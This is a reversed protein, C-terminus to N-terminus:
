QIVVRYVRIDGESYLQVSQSNRRTYEASCFLVSSYNQRNNQIPTFRPRQYQPLFTPQPHKLTPHQPSYKPRSPVLYRSHLFGCLSSSLSRYEEGLIKRTIFHLLILHAPCTARIPSLLLKYLTKTPFGSPFLCKPYGPASPLIINLHIKLFHSTPNHVPDLQILIPLPPPCKHFRYHGEPEM